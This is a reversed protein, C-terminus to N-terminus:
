SQLIKETIDFNWALIGELSRRIIGVETKNRCSTGIMEHEGTHHIFVMPIQDNPWQIGKPLEKVKCLHDATRLKNEYFYFSPWAAIAPHMRYQTDLLVCTLHLGFLRELLSLMTHEKIRNNRSFPPLQQHDGALVLNGTIALRIILCITEAEPSQGAEDLLCFDYTQKDMEHKESSIIGLTSLTSKTWDRLSALAADKM